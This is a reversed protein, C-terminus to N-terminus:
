RSQLGTASCSSIEPKMKFDWSMEAGPRAFTKARVRVKKKYSNPVIVTLMNELPKCGNGMEEYFKDMYISMRSVMDDKKNVSVKVAYPGSNYVHFKNIQIYNFPNGGSSKYYNRPNLVVQSFLKMSNVHLGVQSIDSPLGEFTLSFRIPGAGNMLCLTSHYENFFSSQTGVLKFEKGTIEDKLRMGGQTFYGSYGGFCSFESSTNPQNFTFYLTTYIQNNPSRWNSAYDLHFGSGTIDSPKSIEVLAESRSDDSEVIDLYVLGTNSKWNWESLVDIFYNGMNLRTGGPITKSPTNAPLCARVMAQLANWQTTLGNKDLNQRYVARFFNAQISYVYRQDVFDAVKYPTRWTGVDNGTQLKKSDGIVLDPIDKLLQCLSLSTQNSQANVSNLPQLIVALLLLAAFTRKM